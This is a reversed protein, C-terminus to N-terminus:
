PWRSEIALGVRASPEMPRFVRRSAARTGLLDDIRRAVAWASRLRSERTMSAVRPTIQLNPVGYLAHGPELTGAEAHDLWAAAVRGSALVAALASEDFLGPHAISVIVQNPKCVPLFREGLLGRYRSFYALQVCVADSQKLLERLGLPQIRWRRFVEDSAHKTPDYGVVRSGFGSLLQALSRAAPAMGIVGVTATSLERGLIMGDPGAVPANRLLSLVAAIMFEAEADANALVGRVVEIGAQACADLDVNDAGSGVRGLARLRPAHQLAQVDLRVSPPVIAADANALAQRFARPDHALEPAFRVAHRLGLWQMVEADLQEIILLEM